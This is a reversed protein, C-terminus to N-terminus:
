PTAQLTPRIIRLLVDADPAPGIPPLDNQNALRHPEFLVFGIAARIAPPHMAHCRNEVKVMGPEMRRLLCRGGQDELQGGFIAGLKEM